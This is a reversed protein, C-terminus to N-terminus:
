LLEKISNIVKYRSKIKESKYVDILLPKIGMSEAVKLNSENDDVFIVEEAKVGLETLAIEFLKEEAKTTGYISSIVFTSFYKRLGKNIFVREISPWTDSVVGLLYKCNLEKLTEEVDDLFIFKEDNYVNDRALLDITEEKIDPYKIEKLLIEYFERFMLYEEEENSVLIKEAQRAKTMSRLIEEKSVKVKNLDIIKMFNPPIFWNGTKPINLTRGSDFLIAKIKNM